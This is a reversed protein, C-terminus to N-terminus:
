QLFLYSLKELVIIVEIINLSDIRVACYVYDAGTIFRLYIIRTGKRLELGVSLYVTPASRLTKSRLIQRYTIM